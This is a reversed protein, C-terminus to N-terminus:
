SRSSVLHTSIAVPETSSPHPCTGADPRVDIPSDHERLLVAEAAQATIRTELFEFHERRSDELVVDNLHDDSRRGSARVSKHVPVFGAIGRTVDRVVAMSEQAGWRIVTRRRVSDLLELARRRCRTMFQALWLIEDMVDAAAVM